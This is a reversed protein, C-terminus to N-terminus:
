LFSDESSVFLLLISEGPLGQWRCYSFEKTGQNGQQRYDEVLSPKGPEDAQQRCDM